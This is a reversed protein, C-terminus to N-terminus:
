NFIILLNDFPAHGLYWFFNALVVFDDPFEILSSKSFDELSDVGLGVKFDGDLEFGGAGFM